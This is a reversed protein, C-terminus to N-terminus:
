MLLIILLIGSLFGLSKTMNGYRLYEDRAESEERELHSLTLKIQKQQQIKDHRGLTEGFQQLVELESEKLATNSWVEELSRAWAEGASFRGDKLRESFHIFLTSIPPKLHKGVHRTAESLATHGFMIEAELAQLAVKIQRLQKPRLSLKKSAELGLWTSTALVMMAGLWMM